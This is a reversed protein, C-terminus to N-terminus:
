RDAPAEHPTETREQLIPLLVTVTTGEGNSEIRIQGHHDLVTRQAIPLGVGLPRAKTTCFPSFAERCVEPTMGQGNDRISVQVSEPAETGGLPKLLVEIRPQARGQLAEMSNTILHAFCEALAARDGRVEPLSGEERMQFDIGDPSLRFKALQLADRVADRVDLPKLVPKPHSAFTCIQQVIADLRDVEQPVLVSFERRFDPEDHREPLLQAFTKIAVLPNRLEHAINKALETWFAARDLERQHEEQQRAQTLDHIFAVAGLCQEGHMLRSTQVALYRRSRPDMWEQAAEAQRDGRLALLLRDAIRSGLAAPPRGLAEARRLGLIREAADSVWQVRGDAAAAVVGTPLSHLLSEAFTKQLTAEEHLLANEIAMAAHEAFIMIDQLDSGGFPLGTGRRGLCLWGVLGRQGQLPALLEAGMADLTRQLLIRDRLPQVHHLMSRCVLQPNIELWRVLAHDRHFELRRMDDRCGIGALLRYPADEGPRVYLGARLVLAANAIGDCIGQLLAAVNEFHRLPPFFHHLALRSPPEDSPAPPQSAAASRALDAQLIRLEQTLQLHDLAQRVLSQLARGEFDVDATAYIGLSEALLM